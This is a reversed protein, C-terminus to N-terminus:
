SNCTTDTCLVRGILIVCVFFQEDNELERIKRKKKEKIGLNFVINIIV